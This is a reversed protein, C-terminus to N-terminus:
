ESLQILDSGVNVLGGKQPLLVISLVVMSKEVLVM